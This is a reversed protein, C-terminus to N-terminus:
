HDPPGDPLEGVAHTHVPGCFTPPGIPPIAHTHVPGCFPHCHRHHQPATPHVVGPSALALLEDTELVEVDDVDLLKLAALDM